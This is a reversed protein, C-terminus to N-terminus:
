QKPLGIDSALKAVRQTDLRIREGFQEASSPSPECGDARCRERYADSTIVTRLAQELRTVVEKPTGAAAMLGVYITYSYNTVGQEALTPVDPLSSVRNATSIGFARLQGEKIHPAMTGPTDFMFNVRGALLDPRVAASGKYPVHLMKVGAMHAMLTATLWTGTGVGGSGFSVTDPNAKARALLQALTRDPQATSGVMIMPADNMSGVAMFDKADYGPEQKLALAQSFASSVALLTYGDAPATLVARIGILGDGGARNDIIVPQGLSSAMREAVWRTNVDILGGPAFPIVIRIPKSPFPDAAFAHLSVAALAALSLRRCARMLGEHVNGSLRSPPTASTSNTM